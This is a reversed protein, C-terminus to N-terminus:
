REDKPTGPSEEPPSPGDGGRAKCDANPEPGAIAVEISRFDSGQAVTYYVPYRFFVNLCIGGVADGQYEIGAIAAIESAPPRLAERSFRFAKENAGFAVPRIRICLDRGTEYPFHSLYRVPLNFRIELHACRAEETLVADSLIRETVPQASAQLAASALGVFTGLRAL